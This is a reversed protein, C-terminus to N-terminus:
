GGIGRKWCTWCNGSLRPDERDNGEGWDDPEGWGSLPRYFERDQQAEIEAKKAKEFGLELLEIADELAEEITDFATEGFDYGGGFAMKLTGQKHLIEYGYKGRLDDAGILDGAKGQEYIVGDENRYEWDEDATVILCGTVIRVEHGYIKQTAVITQKVVGIKKGVVSVDIPLNKKTM